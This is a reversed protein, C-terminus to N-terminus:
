LHVSGKTGKPASCKRWARWDYARCVVVDPPGMSGQVFLSGNRPHDLTKARDHGSGCETSKVM